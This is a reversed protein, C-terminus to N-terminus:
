PVKRFTEKKQSFEGLKSFGNFVAFPIVCCWGVFLCKGKMKTPNSLDLWLLCNGGRMLM